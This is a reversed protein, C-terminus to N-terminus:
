RFHTALEMVRVQTAEERSLTGQVRGDALVMIRDSMALLEPLESSIWIIAMGQQSLHEMLKYIEAKAGVDIGQTPEDLLLIHLDTLLWKSIIVKQQNGGSLNNVIADISPAVINLVDIQERALRREQGHNLIHHRSVRNLNALTVNQVIPFTVILGNKRRNETLLGMGHRKADLPTRIDVPEGDIFVQGQVRKGNMGFLSTVIESRGSGVLGGIGLIEGRHVAFSVDQLSKRGNIFPHDLSLHEVRLVAQGIAAAKKPYMDTLARGVMMHVLDSYEVEAAVPITDVVRGDRLVTVRDVLDLVEEIRHSIYICTVGDERLRRLVRFLTQTETDTLAATPEDLVLIRADRGLAKAIAVMQQQSASLRRTDENPPIDIELRDLLQVARNRAEKWDVWGWRNHPLRGLLINEMVSIDQLLHAEQYIMAVGANESDQPSGFASLVGEIFLKGEYTGAPWAGSLIKMLTSKGAGNEGILGVIESPYAEFSVDSLAVVGSFRKTIHEMRLRPEIGKEM